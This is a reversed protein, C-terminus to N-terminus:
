WPSMGTADEFRRIFTRRSMRAKEALSSITLDRDLHHQAWDFVSLSRMAKSRRFRNGSTNRRARRRSAARHRAAAGRQNAIETGHDSRV